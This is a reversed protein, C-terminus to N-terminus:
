GKGERDRREGALVGLRTCCDKTGCSLSSSGRRGRPRRRSIVEKPNDPKLFALPREASDHCLTSLVTVPCSDRSGALLNKKREKEKHQKKKNNKYANPTQTFIPFPIINGIIARIFRLFFRSIQFGAVLFVLLLNITSIIVIVIMIITIVIYVLIILIIRIRIEIVMMIKIILIIVITIVVIIIIIIIIVIIIIITVEM